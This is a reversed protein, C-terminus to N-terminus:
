TPTHLPLQPESAEVADKLSRPLRSSALPKSRPQESRSGILPNARGGLRNPRGRGRNLGRFTLTLAHCNPCLLTLNDARCNRFDGDIHEVEVPVRQTKSHREAWGCRHCREGGRWILYKRFFKSNITNPYLGRELLALRLFFEHKHHCQICCYHKNRAPCRRGCHNACYPNSDKPNTM